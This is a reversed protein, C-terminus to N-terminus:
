AADGAKALDRLLRRARHYVCPGTNSRNPTAGQTCDICGSDLEPWCGETNDRIDDIVKVLDAVMSHLANREEVMREVSRGLSELRRDLDTTRAVVREAMAILDTNSM